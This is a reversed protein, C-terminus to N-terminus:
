IAHVIKLIHNTSTNCLHLSVISQKRLVLLLKLINKYIFVLICITPLIFYYFEQTRIIVGWINKHYAIVLLRNIPKLPCRKCIHQGKILSILIGNTHYRKCFVITALFCNDICRTGKYGM